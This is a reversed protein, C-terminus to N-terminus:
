QRPHLAASDGDLAAGQQCNKNMFMSSPEVIQVEVTAKGVAVYPWNNYNILCIGRIM